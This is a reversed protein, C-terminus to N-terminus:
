EIEEVELGKTDGHFSQVRTEAVSEINSERHSGVKSNQGPIASASSRAGSGTSGASSIREEIQVLMARWKDVQQRCINAREDLNKIKHIDGDAYRLDGKQGKAVEGPGMRGSKKELKGDDEGGDDIAVKPSKKKIDLGDLDAGAVLTLVKPGFLISISAVDAVAFALSAILQNVAPDLNLLFIIPFVMVCIMVIITMASLVTITPILCTYNFRFM